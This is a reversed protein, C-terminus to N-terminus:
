ALVEMLTMRSVCNLADVGRRGFYSQKSASRNRMQLKYTVASTTTPTDLFQVFQLLNQGTGMSENVMCVMDYSSGTSGGIMTSDRVLQVFADDGGSGSVPCGLSAIAMILITSTTATPTIALSLGVDTYTQTAISTTTQNSVQLVQGIKGASVVWSNDGRLYTTAAATGTASLESVGVADAAIEAATVADTAIETTGVAGTAIQTATVSDAPVTINGLSLQGSGDTIMSQGATGDTAPLTFEAAGQSTKLIKDVSLTGM